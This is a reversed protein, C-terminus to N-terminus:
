DLTGGREIHARFGACSDHVVQEPPCKRGCEYCTGREALIVTTHGGVVRWCGWEDKAVVIRETKM